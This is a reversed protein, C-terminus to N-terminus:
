RFDLMLIRDRLSNIVMRRGGPQLVLAALTELFRAEALGQTRKEQLLRDMQALTSTRQGLPAGLEYLLRQVLDQIERQLTKVQDKLVLVFQKLRQESLRSLDTASIQESELQLMLLALLDSQEYALNIRQMLATRREREEASDARDPHFASTLQRYIERLSQSVQKLNEARQEAALEAKSKARGQRPRYSQKRESARQAREEHLREAHANVAEALRAAFDDLGEGAVPEVDVGFESKARERMMAKVEADIEAREDDALPESEAGLHRDLIECLEPDDYQEVLLPLYGDLYDFVIERDAPSLRRSKTEIACLAELNKILMKHAAVVQPEVSASIEATKQPLSEQFQTWRLLEERQKEVQKLLRHFERQTGTAATPSTLEFTGQSMLATLTVQKTETM